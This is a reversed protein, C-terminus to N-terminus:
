ATEPRAVGVQATEPRAAEAQPTEAVPELVAPATAGREAQALTRTDVQTGEVGRRTARAGAEPRM